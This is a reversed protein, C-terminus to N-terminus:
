IFVRVNICVLVLVIDCLIEFARLGPLLSWCWCMSLCLVVCVEVHTTHYGGLCWHLDAGAGCWLRLCLESLLSLNCNGKYVGVLVLVLVVDRCDWWM